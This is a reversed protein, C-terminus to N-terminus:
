NDKGDIQSKVWARFAKITKNRGEQDIRQLYSPIIEKLPFGPFIQSFQQEQYKGQELCHIELQRHKFRWVEPVGLQAYIDLHTRSTLDVELALDPPPDITM